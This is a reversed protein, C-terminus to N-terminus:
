KLEAEHKRRCKGLSRNRAVLFDILQIISARVIADLQPQMVSFFAIQVITAIMAASTMARTKNSRAWRTCSIV